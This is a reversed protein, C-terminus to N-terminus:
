VSIADATANLLLAMEIRQIRRAFLEDGSGRRTLDCFDIFAFPDWSGNRVINKESGRGAFENLIKSAEDALPAFVPHRGVRRFWYSANGSDPERRHAIGHWYASFSREGLNDAEQAAEHSAEWADLCQLLGAALTLCAPRSAHPMLQALCESSIADALKPHKPSTQVLSPGAAGQPGLGSLAVSAIVDVVAIEASPLNGRELVGLVDSVSAGSEKLFAGEPHFELRSWLDIM